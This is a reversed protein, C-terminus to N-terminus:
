RRDATSMRHAGTFLRRSATASSCVATLRSSSSAVCWPRRQLSTPLGIAILAAGTVIRRGGGRSPSCVSSTSCARAFCAGLHAGHLRVAFEYAVLQLAVDGADRQLALRHHVRHVRGGLLAQLGDPGRDLGVRLHTHHHEGAGALAGEAGAGVHLVRAAQRAELVPRRRPRAAEAADRQALREVHRHDRPDVADRHAAAELHHEAAVDDDGALLRAERQGLWADPPQRQVAAHHQQLPLDRVAGRHAQQEGPSAHARALCQREADDVLHHRAGLEVGGDLAPHGVHEGARRQRHAGDLLARAARRVKRRLLRLRQAQRRHHGRQRALIGLLARTCEALLTRRLPLPASAPRAIVYTMVCGQMSTFSPAQTAQQGTSQM